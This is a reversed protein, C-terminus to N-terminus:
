KDGIKPTPGWYDQDVSARASERDYKIFARKSKLSTIDAFLCCRASLVANAAQQAL